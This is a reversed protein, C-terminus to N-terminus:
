KRKSLSYISMIEAVAKDKKGTSLQEVVHSSIHNKLIVDELSSLANKIALSQHIVDVCYQNDAIMKELGKIQGAIIKIRKLVNKPPTHIHM